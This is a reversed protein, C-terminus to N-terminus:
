PGAPLDANRRATGRRVRPRHGGHRGGRGTGATDRAAHEADVARDEGAEGSRQQHTARAEAQGREHRHQRPQQDRDDEAGDGPRRPQQGGHQLRPQRPGAAPHQPDAHHQEPQLQRDAIQEPQPQALHQHQQHRHRHREGRREPDPRPQADAPPQRQQDRGPERDAAGRRDGRHARHGVGVLVLDGRRDGQDRDVPAERQDGHRQHGAHQPQGVPRAPSHAPM